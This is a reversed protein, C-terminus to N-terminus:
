AKVSIVQSVLLKQGDHEKKMHHVLKDELDQDENEKDNLMGVLKVM